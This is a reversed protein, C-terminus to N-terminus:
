GSLSRASRSEKGAGLHSLLAWDLAPEPAAPRGLVPALPHNAVVHLQRLVRRREVYPVQRASATRPEWPSAAGQGRWRRLVAAKAELEMRSAAEELTVARRRMPPSARLKHLTRKSCDADDRATHANAVLVSAHLM